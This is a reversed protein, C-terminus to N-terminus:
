GKLHINRTHQSYCKRNRAAESNVTLHIHRLIYAATRVAGSRTTCFKNYIAYFKISVILVPKNSSYTSILHPLKYNLNVEFQYISQNKQRIYGHVVKRLPSMRFEEGFRYTILLGEFERFSLFLGKQWQYGNLLRSHLHSYQAFDMMCRASKIFFCLCM